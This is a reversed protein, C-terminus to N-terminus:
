VNFRSDKIRIDIEINNRICTDILDYVSFKHFDKNIFDGGKYMLAGKIKNIIFNTECEIREQLDM